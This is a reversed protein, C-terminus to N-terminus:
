TAYKKLNFKEKNMIAGKTMAVHRGLKHANHICDKIENNKYFNYLFCANFADGCGTTDIVKKEFKLKYNIFKDKTYISTFGNGYRFIVTKNKCYKLIFKQYNRIMLNKLDENTFFITDSIKCFKLILQKALKSSNWNNLRVNFDFYISVNNQKALKLLKHFNVINKSNYISLTIGSFYIADFNCIKNLLSKFNINEFYTKAASNKRWYFFNREGNKKNDILYLGVSKKKNIYINNTEVKEKSLFNIMNKSFKDNGVSTIYSSRAGLRSLYIATNATDGAYGLTYKENNTSSLEIMCEGISCIRM